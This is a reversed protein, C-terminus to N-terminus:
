FLHCPPRRRPRPVGDPRSPLCIAAAGALVAADGRHALVLIRDLLRQIPMGEPLLAALVTSERSYDLSLLVFWLHNLPPIWRGDERGLRFWDDLWFHM